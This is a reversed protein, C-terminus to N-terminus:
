GSRMNRIYLTASNDKSYKRIHNAADNDIAIDM